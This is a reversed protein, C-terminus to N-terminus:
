VDFDVLAEGLQLNGLSRLRPIEGSGRARLRPDGLSRVPAEFINCLNVCVALSLVGFLVFCFKFKFSKFKLLNTKSVAVNHCVAKKAM